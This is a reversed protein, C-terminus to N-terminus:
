FAFKTNVQAHARGEVEAMPRNVDWWPMEAIMMSSVKKREAGSKGKVGDLLILM